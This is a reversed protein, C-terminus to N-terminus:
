NAQSPCVIENGGTLGYARELEVAIKIWNQALDFYVAQTRTDKANNALEICAKARARCDTPNAMDVGWLLPGM